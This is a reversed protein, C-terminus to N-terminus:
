NNKSDLEKVFESCLETIDGAGQFVIIDGKKINKKLYVIVETGESVYNVNAFLKKLENYIIKSTIGELPMERAPYIDLLLIEDSNYLENAFDKYFDRTRSFLHPQFVTIIKHETYAEKLGKLSSAIEKPHHAYDDFVKIGNKDYKLQLRRDVTKYGSISKRFTEFDINLIKSIAFCAASNLV